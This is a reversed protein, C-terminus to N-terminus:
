FFSFFRKKRYQRIFNNIRKEIEGFNEFKREEKKFNGTHHFSKGNKSYFKYKKHLMEHFMIYDLLIQEATQFITSIMITDSGYEYSGLKRMSASGWKLNPKEILGNFYKENVRDFSDSLIPDDKTKPVAIHIKKLFIEYLEINQTQVKTKLLKNLLLQILGTKVDDNIKEWKRSMSITIKKGIRRINANYDNFKDSYKLSFEYEGLKAEPYLELYAKEILM